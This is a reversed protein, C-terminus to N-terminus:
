CDENGDHDEDGIEAETKTILRVAGGLGLTVHDVLDMFYDPRFDTQPQMMSARKRALIVTLATGADSDEYLQRAYEKARQIIYSDNAQGQQLQEMVEQSIAKANDSLSRRKIKPALLTDNEILRNMLSIVIELLHTDSIRVRIGCNPNTCEWSERIRLRSNVRRHMPAGCVACRTCTRLLDIGEHNKEFTNRQRATKLAVAQDYLADDVIPAYDDSGTYKANQLIRAVRAKDWVATKETYPVRKLTLQEAIAKLSDGSVYRDYISRIVAAEAEDVVIQGNRMTYGYPIYRIKKM